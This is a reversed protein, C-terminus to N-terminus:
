GAGRGSIGRAEWVEQLALRALSAVVRGAASSNAVVYAGSATAPDGIMYAHYGTFIGNKSVVTRGDLVGVNFGLAAGDSGFQPRMLEQASELSLVRDAGPDSSLVDALFAAMHTPTIYADGAAFVNTRIQEIPAAGGDELGYPLALVEAMTATPTSPTSVTAGIRQFVREDLFTDFSIGSVESVVLGAMTYCVNCYEYTLGPPGTRSSARVTEEPSLIEQRSWLPVVEVPGELGAFHALLHRLLVDSAGSIELDAPVLANFPTDLSLAGDDVLQMIAAATVPKLTSGTSYLTEPTAPASTALNAYGFAASWVVAGDSVVALSISPITGDSLVREVEGELAARVPAFWEPIEQAAAPTGLAGAIASVVLPWVRTANSM